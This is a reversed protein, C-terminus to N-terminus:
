SGAPKTGTLQDEITGLDLRSGIVNGATQHLGLGWLLSALIDKVSGWTPNEVWLMYVGIGIAVLGVVVAIWFDRRHIKKEIAQMDHWVRQKRDIREQQKGPLNPFTLISAAPALEVPKASVLNGNEDTAMMMPGGPLSKETAEIVRRASEYSQKAELIEANNIRSVTEDLSKQAEDLNAGRARLKDTQDQAATVLLRLYGAYAADAAQTATIGDAAMRAASSSSRTRSILSEWDQQDTQSPRKLSNVKEELDNALIQAYSKRADDLLRRAEAEAIPEEAAAKDAKTLTQVVRADFDAKRAPALEESQAKAKKLTDAIKERLDERVKKDITALATNLTTRIPDPDGPQTNRLFRESEEVATRLDDRVGQLPLAELRIRVASWLPLISLKGNVDKLIEDPKDAFGLGLEDNLTQLRGRLVELVSQDPEKPLRAGLDELDRELQLVRRQQILRPRDIKGWRRLYYSLLVGVAIFGAAFAWHRKLYITVPQDPLSGDESSITLTGTYEGPQSLGPLRMLMPVSINEGIELSEGIKESTGDTKVRLFEVGTYDAQVLRDGEKIGLKTLVPAHLLVAVGGTEQLTFKVSPTGSLGVYSVSTAGAIRITPAGTTRTIKLVVTTVRQGKCLLSIWSSYEGALPLKAKLDLRVAKQPKAITSAGPGAIGDLAWKTEVTKSDPGVLDPLEISLPAPKMGAVEIFLARSFSASSTTFKLGDAATAGIIKFEPPRSGASNAPLACCLLCFLMALARFMRYM